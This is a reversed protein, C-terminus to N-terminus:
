SIELSRSADVLDSQVANPDKSAMYAVYGISRVATTESYYIVTNGKNDTGKVYSRAAIPRNYYSDPLNNFTGDANYSGALVATYSDADWWIKAVSDVISKTEHTLEQSGLMDAPLLLTGYQPNNILGKIEEQKEVSVDTTFRIGNPEITRIAATENMTLGDLTRYITEAEADTKSMFPLLAGFCCFATASLLLSVIKNKVNKKM